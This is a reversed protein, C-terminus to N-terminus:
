GLDADAGYTKIKQLLNPYSIGLMRAAESKIGTAKRMSAQILESEVRTLHDRLTM